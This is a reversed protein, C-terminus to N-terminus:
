PKFRINGIDTGDYTTPINTWGANAWSLFGSVMLTLRGGAGYDYHPMGHGHGMEHGIVKRIANDDPTDPTTQDSHTPTDLRISRLRILISTVINPYGGGGGAGVGQSWNTVGYETALYPGETIRVARAAIHSTHGPQTSDTNFNMYRNGNMESSYVRHTWAPSATGFQITSHGGVSIESYAFYDKRAPSTRRHTDRVFFGRYEEFATLCDGNVGAGGPNNDADDGEHGPGPDAVHETNSGNTADWGCDAIKDGNEDMPVKKTANGVVNNGRKVVVKVETYGAYDRSTLDIRATGDAGFTLTKSAPLAFDAETSTGKNMCYGPYHTTNELSFTATLGPAKSPAVQAIIKVVEPNSGNADYGKPVYTSIDDVHDAEWNNNKDLILACDVEENPDATAGTEQGIALPCTIGVMCLCSFLVIAMWRLQQETSARRPKKLRNSRM